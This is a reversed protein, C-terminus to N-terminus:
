GQANSSGRASQGVRDQRGACVGTNQRYIEVRRSAQWRRKAYQLTASTQTVASGAARTLVCSALTFFHILSLLPLFTLPCLLFPTTSHLSPPPLSEGITTNTRTLLQTTALKSPTTYGTICKEAPCRAPLFLPPPAAQRAPLLRWAACANLL